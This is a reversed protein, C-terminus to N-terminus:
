PHAGGDSVCSPIRPHFPDSPSVSFPPRLVGFSGGVCFVRFVREQVIVKTEHCAAQCCAWDQSSQRGGTGALISTKNALDYFEGSPLTFVIWTSLSLFKLRIISGILSFCVIVLEQHEGDTWCIVQSLSQVTSVRIPISAVASLPCFRCRLDHYICGHFKESPALSRLTEWFRGAHVVLVDCFHTLLLIALLAAFGFLTGCYALVPDQPIVCGFSWSDLDLYMLSSIALVTAFAEPWSILLLEFVGLVHNGDSQGHNYDPSHLGEAASPERCGCLVRFCPCLCCRCEPWRDVRPGSQWM